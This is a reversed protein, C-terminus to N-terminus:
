NFIAWFAVVTSAVTCLLTIPVVYVRLPTQSQRELDGQRNELTRLRTEHDNSIGLIMDIKTEIRALREDPDGQATLFKFLSGM